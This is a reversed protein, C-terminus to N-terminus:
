GAEKGSGEELESLEIKMLFAICLSGSHLFVGLWLLSAEKGQFAGTPLEPILKGNGLGEFLIDTTQNQVM